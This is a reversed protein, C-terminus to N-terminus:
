EGHNSSDVYNQLEVALEDLEKRSRIFEENYEKSAKKMAQLREGIIRLADDRSTLIAINAGISVMVEDSEVVAPVFASSGLPAFIRKGSGEMREIAEYTVTLKMVTEDIEQKEKMLSKIREKLFEYMYYKEKFESENM